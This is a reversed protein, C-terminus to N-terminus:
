GQRVQGSELDMKWEHRDPDGHDYAYLRHRNIQNDYAVWVYGTMPLLHFGRDLTGGLCVYLADPSKQVPERVPLNHFPWPWANGRPLQAKVVSVGGPLGSQLIQPGFLFPHSAWRAATEMCVLLAPQCHQLKDRWEEQSLRHAFRNRLERLVRDADLFRQLAAGSADALPPWLAETGLAACIARFEKERYANYERSIGSNREADAPKPMVFHQGKKKRYLALAQLWALHLTREWFDCLARAAELGFDDVGDTDFWGSNVLRGGAIALPTPLVESARRFYHTFYDQRLGQAVKDAWSRASLTEEDTSGSSTKFWIDAAGMGAERCIKRVEMPDNRGTFLVLHSLPHAERLWRGLSIGVGIALEEGAQEAFHQDLSVWHYYRQALLEKAQRATAALDVSVSCRKQRCLKVLWEQMPNAWNDVEDEIILVRYTLEIM